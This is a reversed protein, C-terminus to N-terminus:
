RRDGAPAPAPAGADEDAADLRKQALAGNNSAAEDAAIDAELTEASLEAPSDDVGGKLTRKSAMSASRCTLWSEYSTSSNRKYCGGEFLEYYGYCSSRKNPRTRGNRLRRDCAVYGGSACSATCEDLTLSGLFDIECYISSDYNFEGVQKTRVGCDTCDVAVGLWDDDFRTSAKPRCQGYWKSFKVCEFDDDCCNKLSM